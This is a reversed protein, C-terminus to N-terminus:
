GPRFLLLLIMPIAMIAGVILVTRQTASQAMWVAHMNDVARKVRLPKTAQDHAKQMQAAQARETPSPERANIVRSPSPWFEQGEIVGPGDAFAPNVPTLTPKRLLTIQGAAV